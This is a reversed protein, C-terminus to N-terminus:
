TSEEGEPTAPLGRLNKHSGKGWWDDLRFNELPNKEKQRSLYVERTKTHVKEGSIMERQACLFSAVCCELNRRYLCGMRDLKGNSSQERHTQGSPDTSPSQCGASRDTTRQSGKFIQCCRHSEFFSSGVDKSLNSEVLHTTGSVLFSYYWAPHASDALCRTMRNFWNKVRNDSDMLVWRREFMSSRCTKISAAFSRGNGISFAIANCDKHTPDSPKAAVTADERMCIFLLSSQWVFPVRRFLNALDGARNGHAEEPAGGVSLGWRMTERVSRQLLRVLALNNTSSFM